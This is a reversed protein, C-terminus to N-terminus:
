KNIKALMPSARINFGIRSVHAVSSLPYFNSDIFIIIIVTTCRCCLHMLRMSHEDLARTCWETLWGTNGEALASEWGRERDLSTNNIKWTLNIRRFINESNYPCSYIHPVCIFSLIQQNLLIANQQQYMLNAALLMNRFYYYYYRLFTHIKVRAPSCVFSRASSRACLVCSVRWKHHYHEPENSRM